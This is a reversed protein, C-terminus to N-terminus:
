IPPFEEVVELNPTMSPDVTFQGEQLYESHCNPGCIISTPSFVGRLLVGGTGTANLGRGFMRAVEVERTWSFGVQKEQWRGLNEGRYLTVPGGGYPPLLQRLMRCLLDDDSVQERIRHGAEIWYTGFEEESPVLCGQGLVVARAVKRWRSAKTVERLADLPM